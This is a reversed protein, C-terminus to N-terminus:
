VPSKAEIECDLKGLIIKLFMVIGGELPLVM